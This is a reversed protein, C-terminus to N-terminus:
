HTCFMHQFVSAFLPLKVLLLRDVAASHHLKLVRDPLLATMVLRGEACWVFLRTDRTLLAFLTPLRCGAVSSSFLPSPDNVTLQHQSVPVHRRIWSGQTLQLAKVCSALDCLTVRKMDREELDTSVDM